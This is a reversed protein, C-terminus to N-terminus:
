EYYVLQSINGDRDRRFRAEGDFEVPALTDRRRGALVHRQGGGYGVLLHRERRITVTLDPRRDFRYEGVFEDLMGHEVDHAFSPSAPRNLFSETVSRPLSRRLRLRGEYVRKGATGLPIGLAAAIASLPEGLLYFRLIAEREGAPLDLIARRVATQTEHRNLAECADDGDDAVRDLGPVGPIEATASRRRRARACGTRVLRRIWAGFAAPDRLTALMRWAMVFAEQCADRASERDRCARMATVLAM